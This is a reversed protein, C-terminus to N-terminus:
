PMNNLELMEPVALKVQKMLTDVSWDELLIPIDDNQAYWKQAEDDFSITVIYEDIVSIYWSKFSM